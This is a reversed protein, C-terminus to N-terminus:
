TVGGTSTRRATVAPASTQDAAVGSVSSRVASVDPTSTAKAAADPVTNVLSGAPSLSGLFRKAAQRALAGTAIIAGSLLKATSRQIAGTPAVAGSLTKGTQRTLAGTPTVTGAFTRLAAKLTALTGAPTIAGAPAKGTRRVLGGTPSIGGGQSKSTGRVLAGAPTVAGVPRKAAQRTVAGAPTCSGTNTQTYQTPGGVASHGAAAQDAFGYSFVPVSETSVSTVTLATENAGNGTADLVKTGTAAQDLLWLGVPATHYWSQLSLPLLEVEADTLVRDWCGIIAIDANIFETTAYRGLQVVGGAGPTAGADAATGAANSHTWTDTGYVYKHGRPTATGSAKSVAALHWNDANTGGVCNQGGASTTFSYNNSFIEMAFSVTSTSPGAYLIAGNVSDTLRIICAMTVPGGDLGSLGGTSCTVLGNNAFNRPM